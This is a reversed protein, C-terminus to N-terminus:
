EEVEIIIDSTDIGHKTMLRKKIYEGAAKIAEGAQSDLATRLFPNPDMGPHTVPGKGGKRLSHPRSGKFEVIYAYFVDAGTKKSKGGVIVRAKVQKNRRDIRSSIRISDRLAGNYLKYRRKASESPEGTPANAKAAEMVPKAAARLAGRMINTEVKAPLQQLFKNLEKLGKVEFTTAM